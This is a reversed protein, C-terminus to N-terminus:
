RPGGALLKGIAYNKDLDAGGAQQGMLSQPPLADPDSYDLWQGPQLGYHERLGKDQEPMPMIGLQMLLHDIESFENRRDEVNPSPPANIFARDPM